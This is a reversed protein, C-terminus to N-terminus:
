PVSAGHRPVRRPVIWDGREPLHAVIRLQRRSSHSGPPRRPHCVALQKRVRHLRAIREERPADPVIGLVVSMSTHRPLGPAIDFYATLADPAVVMRDVFMPGTAHTRLTASTVVGFSPACGRVAWWLDADAGVSDDSLRLVEGSPVVLEISVLQDVTLGLSRTLYGVGGRTALGLGALRVIGIPVTRADRVLADLMTGMTTGGGVVVVDKDSVAHDLHTSLDVMIADNAVCCSSLGGGRVTVSCESERAIKMISSVEEASTPEVVCAPRRRAADPFFVRGLAAAYAASDPVSVRDGLAERLRPVGEATSDTM